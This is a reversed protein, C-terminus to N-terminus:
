VQEEEILYDVDLRRVVWQESGDTLYLKSIKYKEIFIEAEREEMDLYFALENKDLFPKKSLTVMQAATKLVPELQEMDEKISEILASNVKGNPMTQSGRSGPFRVINTSLTEKPQEPLEIPATEGMEGSGHVAALKPSTAVLMWHLTKHLAKRVPQWVAIALLGGMILTFIKPEVYTMFTLVKGQPLVLKFLDVALGLSNFMVIHILMANRSEFAKLTKSVVFINVITLPLATKTVFSIPTLPLLVIIVVTFWFYRLSKGTAFKYIEWFALAFFIASVSNDFLYFYWNYFYLKYLISLFVEVLLYIQTLRLCSFRKSFFLIIFLTLILYDNLSLMELVASM